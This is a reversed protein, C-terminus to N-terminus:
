LDDPLAQLDYEVLKVTKLACKRCMRPSSLQAFREIGDETYTLSYVVVGCDRCRIADPLGMLADKVRNEYSSDM